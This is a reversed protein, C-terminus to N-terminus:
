IVSIRQYGATKNNRTGRTVVTIEAGANQRIKRFTPIKKEFRRIHFSLARLNLHIYAYRLLHLKSFLVHPSINRGVSTLCTPAISESVGEPSVHSLTLM